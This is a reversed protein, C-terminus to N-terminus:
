QEKKKRLFFYGGIAAVSILSITVIIATNSIAEKSIGLISLRGHRGIISSRNIFDTIEYKSIIDDYKAMFQAIDSDTNNTATVVTETGHGTVVYTAHKYYAKVGISLNNFATQLSSWVQDSNNGGTGTCTLGSLKDSSTITVVKYIDISLYDTKGEGLNSTAYAGFTGTGIQYCLARSSGSANEIVFLGGNVGTASLSWSNTSSAESTVNLETKDAKAQNLYNSSDDQFKFNDGDKSVTWSYSNLDARMSEVSNNGFTDSWHNSSTTATTPLKKESVSNAAIAPHNDQGIPAGFVIEDGNQLESASSIKYLFGYMMQKVEVSCTGTKSVNGTTVTLSITVTGAAVGSVAGSQTVTAVNTDSSEWLYTPNDFGSPDPYINAEIESSGGIGLTLSSPNLTVTSVVSPDLAKQVYIAIHNQTDNYCSFISNTSNYRLINRNSSGAVADFVGNELTITFKGSDGLSEGTRLYNNSGSGAAYIYQGLLSSDGNLCKFAIITNSQTSYSEVTFVQITTSDNAISINDNAVTAGTTIGRNNGNQTTSMAVTGDGNTIIVVANATLQSLSTVKEYNGVVTPAYQADAAVCAALKEQNAATVFAKQSSTLAAFADNAATIQTHYNYNTITAPNPLAVILATVADAAEKDAVIEDYAAEAATLTSYNDVLNKGLDGSLLADYAARAADIADGSSITVTGIATILSKVNNVAATKLSAFSLEADTLTSYNSVNKKSAEPLADYLSRAATILDYSAKTYAVAGIADIATITAAASPIVTITYSTTVPNAHRYDSGTYTITVTKEGTTSMDPTSVSYETSELSVTDGDVTASVTLNTYNFTDGITFQKQVSTTNAALATIEPLVEVRKYFAFTQNAINGTTNLYCRWDQTGYIGVYRAQGVNKLYGSSDLVFIKDDGTGITGIRLGNNNNICYLWSTTDGNPYFTYNSSSVSLTWKLNDSVASTIKGNSITVSVPLPASAGGDNPLAYTDGNDGVFVFVDSSTINSLATEVWEYTKAKQWVAYLNLGSSTVTFSADPQTASNSISWGLCEYGNLTPLSTSPTFSGAPATTSSPVGSPTGAGAPANGYYTVTYKPILTFSGNITINSEVDALSLKVDGDVTTRSSVTVTNPSVTFTSLNDPIRYGESPTLYVDGSSVDSSFSTSTHGAKTSLAGGTVSITTSYPTAGATYTVDISTVRAQGSGTMNCVVSESGSSSTWTATNGSVSIGTPSSTWTRVYGSTCNFTIQTITGGSITVNSGAYMKIHGSAGYSKTFAFSIDDSSVTFSGGSGSTGKGSCASQSLTTTSAHVRNVGSGKEGIAVGVGIAMALGLTITAIKNFLKNMTFDGKSM